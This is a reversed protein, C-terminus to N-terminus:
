KVNKNLFAMLFFLVYRQNFVNMEMVGDCQSDKLISVQLREKCRPSELILVGKELDIFTQINCM